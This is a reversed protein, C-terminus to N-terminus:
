LADLRNKASIAEREAELLEDNKKAVKDLCYQLYEKALQRRSKQPPQYDNMWPECRMEMERADLRHAGNWNRGSAM